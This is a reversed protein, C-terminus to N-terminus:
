DCPWGPPEIIRTHMPHDPNDIVYPNRPPEGFHCEHLVWQYHSLFMKVAWRRARLDIRGPPLRGAEYAERTTSEKFNRTELTTRATDAFTGAENRETELAKRQRYLQGYVCQERGSFKVFCDGAIWALRKLEANYRRKEGKRPPPLSPDLGAFRWIQGATRAKEPDIHSLLGSAIVPGIGYVSRLWRGQRSTMSWADMAVRIDDEVRRLSSFVHTVLANPEAAEQRAAAQQAARKRYEQVDYYLRVIRRVDGTALSRATALLDRRALRELDTTPRDYDIAETV